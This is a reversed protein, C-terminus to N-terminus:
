LYSNNRGSITIQVKPSRYERLVTGNVHTVCTVMGCSWFRTMTVARAKDRARERTTDDMWDLEGMRDELAREVRGIMEVAESKSSGAFAVSRAKARQPLSPSATQRLSAVCVCRLPATPRALVACAAPAEDLM